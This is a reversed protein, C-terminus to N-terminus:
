ESPSVVPCFRDESWIPLSSKWTSRVFGPPALDWAADGVATHNPADQAFMGMLAMVRPDIERKENERRSVSEAHVGLLDAIVAAKYGLAKRIYRFADGAHGAASVRKTARRQAWQFVLEKPGFSAFMEKNIPGLLLDGDRKLTFMTVVTCMRANKSKDKKGRKRSCQWTQRRQRGRHRPSAAKEKKKRKGRRKHPDRGVFPVEATGGTQTVQQTRDQPGGLRQLLEPGGPRQKPDHRLLEVCLADLDPPVVALSSPSKVDFRQKDLLIQLFTGQFPLTGTLAEYLMSGVSYWDTAESLEGGSAQEPSMYEATGVVARSVAEQQEVNTVLGFDLLVVRGEPTALVNSPKIDRHLKGAVHLASVGAVLQRLALRLKDV